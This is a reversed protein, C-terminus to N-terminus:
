YAQQRYCSQHYLRAFRPFCLRLLHQSVALHATLAPHAPFSLSVVVQVGSATIDSIFDLSTARRVTVAAAVWRRNVRLSCPSAVIKMQRGSLVRPRQHHHHQTLSARPAQCVCGYTGCM